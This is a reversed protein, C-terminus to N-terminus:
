AAKPIHLYAGCRNARIKNHLKKINFATALLILETQVKVQGRLLFRRFGMDQKLVGFAGEVQISRNIRLLIGEDTN